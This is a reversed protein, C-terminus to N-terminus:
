KAARPSADAHARRRNREHRRRREHAADARVAHVVRPLRRRARVERQGAALADSRVLDSSPEFAHNASKPASRISPRRSQKV